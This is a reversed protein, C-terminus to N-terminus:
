FDEDEPDAALGFPFRIKSALRSTKGNLENYIIKEGVQEACASSLLLIYFKVKLHSHGM